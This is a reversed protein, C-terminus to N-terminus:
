EVDVFQAALETDAGVYEGHASQVVGIYSAFLDHALGDIAKVDEALGKTLTAVEGQSTQLELPDQLAAERSEMAAKVLPMHGKLEDTNISINGTGM